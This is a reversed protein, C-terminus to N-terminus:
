HLERLLFEILQEENPRYSARDPIMEDSPVSPASYNSHWRWLIQGFLATIVKWVGVAIGFM